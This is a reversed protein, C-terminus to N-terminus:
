PLSLEVENIFTLKYNKLHNMEYIDYICRGATMKPLILTIGNLGEFRIQARRVIHKHVNQLDLLKTALTM